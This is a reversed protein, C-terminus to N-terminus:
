KIRYIAARRILTDADPLEVGYSARAGTRSNDILYKKMSKLKQVTGNRKGAQWRYNHFDSYGEGVDSFAQSRNNHIEDFLAGGQAAASDLRVEANRRAPMATAWRLDQLATEFRTNISNTKTEDIGAVEDWEPVSPPAANPDPVVSWEDYMLDYAAYPKITKIDDTALAYFTLEYGNWDETKKQLNDHFEENLQDSIEKNTLGSFEPNAKKFRIFDIGILCDLDGPERAAQWQYSVGSGALWPHAWMESHRYSENLFDKILSMIGNRISAKLVRGQFLKPDLTDAPKSFYSTANTM